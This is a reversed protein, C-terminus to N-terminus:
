KGESRFSIMCMYRRRKEKWGEPLHADAEALCWIALDEPRAFWPGTGDVQYAPLERDRVLAPIDRVSRGVAKAIESRGKILFTPM